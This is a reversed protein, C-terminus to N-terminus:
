KIFKNVLYSFELLFLELKYLSFGVLKLFLNSEILSFSILSNFLKVEEVGIEVKNLPTAVCM